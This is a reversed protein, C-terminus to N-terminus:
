PRGPGEGEPEVPDCGGTCFPNCRLMRWLGKLPGVIPGKRRIAEIMYHSCSPHFRCTRPLLPSICIQYGRVLAILVAGLLRGPLRLWPGAANV